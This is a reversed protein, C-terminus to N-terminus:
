TVRRRRLMLGAVGILFIAPTTPEPIESSNVNLTITENNTLAWVYTGLQLDLSAFSHGLYTSTSDLLDGSLYDDPTSFGKGHVAFGPGTDLDSFIRASNTAFSTTPISVFNISGYNLAEDNPWDGVSTSGTIFFPNGNVLGSSYSSGGTVTLTSTDLSGELSAVVNPGIEDFDIVISAQVTPVFLTGVFLALCATIRMHGMVERLTSAGQNRLNMTGMNIRLDM